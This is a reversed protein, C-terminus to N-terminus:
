DEQGFKVEMVRLEELDIEEFYVWLKEGVKLKQHGAFYYEDGFKEVNLKLTLYVDRKLPNNKVYVRGLDDTTVIDANESQFDILKAIIEEGFGRMVMGKELVKAQWPDVEEWKVEVEFWETNERSLNYNEDVVWGFFSVESFDFEVLSGVALPQNKFVFKEKTKDYYGNVEIILYLDREENGREYDQIELIEASIEGDSTLEKMGKEIKDSLWFPSGQSDYGGWGNPNAVQVRVIRWQDKKQYKKVIFIVGLCVLLLIFVDIINLGFIKQKLRKQLNM